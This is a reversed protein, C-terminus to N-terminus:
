AARGEVLRMVARIADKVADPTREDRWVMVVRLLETDDGISLGLPDLPPYGAALLLRDREQSTLGLAHALQLVREVRPRKRGHEYKSIEGHDERYGTTREAVDLQSLGRETRLLRLHAGFTHPQASM